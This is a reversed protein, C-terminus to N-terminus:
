PSKSERKSCFVPNHVEQDPIPVSLIPLSFERPCGTICISRKKGVCRCQVSPCQSETRFRNREYRPSEPLLFPAAMELNHNKYSLRMASLTHLSFLFSSSNIFSVNKPLPENCIPLRKGLILKIM